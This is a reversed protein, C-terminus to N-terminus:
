LRASNLPEGNSLQSKVRVLRERVTMLMRAAQRDRSKIPVFRM